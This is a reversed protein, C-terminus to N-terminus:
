YQSGAAMEYKLKKSIFGWNQETANHGIAFSLSRSFIDTKALPNGEVCKYKGLIGQWKFHRQSEGRALHTMMHSIIKIAEVYVVPM